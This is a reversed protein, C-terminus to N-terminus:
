TIIMNRGNLEVSKLLVGDLNYTIIKSNLLLGFCSVFVEVESGCPDTGYDKSVIIQAKAHHVIRNDLILKATMIKKYSLTILLLLFGIFAIDSIIIAKILVTDMYFANAFAVFLIGCASGILFLKTRRKLSTLLHVGKIYNERDIM